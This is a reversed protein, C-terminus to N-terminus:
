GRTVMILRGDWVATLEDRTMLVPRPALPSQVLVKDEAAKAVLLFSGDNLAAIAPLPTRALRSWDTRCLRSKLGLDQACRLMAPAGIKDTGMRHRIQGADGAVGQLHLLTLLVQLGPDS